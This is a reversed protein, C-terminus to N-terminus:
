ATTRHKRFFELFGSPLLVQVASRCEPPFHKLNGTVLCEAAACRAVELFVNDDADPLTRPLPSAAHVQGFNRIYELVVGAKQQDMDFKLRLLVEEYELLIRADVCLTIRGSTVMRVIEGCPGFPTLLGSVLVNTDLVIRV